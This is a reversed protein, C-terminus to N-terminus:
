SARVKRRTSAAGEPDLLKLLGEWQGENMGLLVDVLPKPLRAVAPATLHAGMSRWFPEAALHLATILENAQEISPRVRQNEWNSITAAAEGIAEALDLQTWGKRERAERIVEGYTQTTKAM